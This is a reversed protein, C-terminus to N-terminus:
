RIWMEIGFRGGFIDAQQDYNRMLSNLGRQYVVQGSLSVNHRFYYRVGLGLDAQMWVKNLFLGPADQTRMGPTKGAEDQWEVSYAGSVGSLFSFNIGASAFCSWRRYRFAYQFSVPVTIYRFNVNCDPCYVTDTTYRSVTDIQKRVLAFYSGDPRQIYERNVMKLTTDFTYHEYPSVYNTQETWQRSGFGTLLSFSGRSLRLSLGYDMASSTKEYANKWERIRPEYRHILSGYQVYPMLYWQFLPPRRTDKLKEPHAPKQVGDAPLSIGTPPKAMISNTTLPDHKNVPQDPEAPETNPDASAEGPPNVPVGTNNQTPTGSDPNQTSSTPVENSADGFATPTEEQDKGTEPADSSPHFTEEPTNGSPDSTMNKHPADPAPEPNQLQHGPDSEKAPVIGKDAAPSTVPKDTGATSPNVGESVTSANDTKQDPDTSLADTGAAATSNKKHPTEKNPKDPLTNDNPLAKQTEGSNQSIASDGSNNREWSLPILFLLPILILVPIAWKWLKRLSRKKGEEQILSEMQEWYEPRFDMGKDSLGRRFLEDLRNKRSM